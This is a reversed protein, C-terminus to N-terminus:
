PLFGEIEDFATNHVVSVYRIASFDQFLTVSIENTAGNIIRSDGALGLPIDPPFLLSHGSTYVTDGPQYKYQLPIEKLIAGRSGKGDWVLLGTGGELGLRASISIDANQFSFAYSHHASVADIMGVVGCRTVIGSKEQIGDEYGRNLILYNHQSNRSMKVVEAPIVVFGTDRLLGADLSDTYVRRLAERAATLDKFLEANEQALERNTRSLRFFGQVRQTSGWVTGMFGHAGKALWIQQLDANRSLMQLSAIELLIFIALNVLRLVLKRSRM